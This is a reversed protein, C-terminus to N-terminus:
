GIGWDNLCEARNSEEEAKIEAIKHNNSSLEHSKASFFGLKSTLDSFYQRIFQCSREANLATDLYDYM